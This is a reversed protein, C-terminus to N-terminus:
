QREAVIFHQNAVQEEWIGINKRIDCWRKLQEPSYDNKNVNLITNKYLNKIARIDKKGAKRVSVAKVKAAKPLERFLGTFYVQVAKWKEPDIHYKIGPFTNTKQILGAEKLENLHQSLTSKAVPLGEAMESHTCPAQTTLMQLIAIRVPHGIAKAYLALQEQHNTFGKKVM